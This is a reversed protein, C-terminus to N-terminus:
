KINANKTRPHEACVHAAFEKDRRREYKEMMEALSDGAPPRSPSFVWACESCGSGQFRSGEIWILTRRTAVMPRRKRQSYNVIKPM